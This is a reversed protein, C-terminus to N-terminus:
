PYTVTAMADAVLKPSIQYYLRFNRMYTERGATANTTKWWLEITDWEEVTIDGTYTVYSSGASTASNVTTAVGNVYIVCLSTAGWNWNRMDYSSKYTGAKVVTFEKHKIFNTSNTYVEGDSAPWLLDWPMIEYTSNLGAPTVVENSITGWLTDADNALRSIGAHSTSARMLRKYNWSGNKYWTFYDNAWPDNNDATQSNIDLTVAQYTPAADPWNSTLVQAATGITIEQEDGDGDTYFQKRTSMWTRLEGDDLKNADLESIADQADEFVSATMALVVYDDADFSTASSGDFWREVTLIDGTRSTVKVKERKVVNVEEFGSWDFQILTLVYDWTAPFLAGEWSKLTISTAGSAIGANLQWQANDEVKYKVYWTLPM